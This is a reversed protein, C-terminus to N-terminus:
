VLQSALLGGAEPVVFFRRTAEVAQRGKRGSLRDGGVCGGIGAATGGIGEGDGGGDIGVGTVHRRAPGQRGQTGAGRRAGPGEAAAEEGLDGVLLPVVPAPLRALTDAVED